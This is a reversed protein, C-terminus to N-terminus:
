PRNGAEKNDFIVLLLYPIMNGALVASAAPDIKRSGRQQPSKYGDSVAQQIVENM